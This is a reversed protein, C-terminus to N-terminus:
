RLRRKMLAVGFDSTWQILRQLLVTAYSPNCFYLWYFLKFASEILMFRTQRGWDYETM